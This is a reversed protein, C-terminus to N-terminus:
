WWLVLMINVYYQQKRVHLAWCVLHLPRFEWGVNKHINAGFRFKFKSRKKICTVGKKCIIKTKHCLQNVFYNHFYMLIQLRKLALCDVQWTKFMAANKLFYPFSVLIKIDIWIYLYRVFHIFDLVLLLCCM